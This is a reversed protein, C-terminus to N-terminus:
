DHDAALMLAGVGSRDRRDDPVESLHGKSMVYIRDCLALVEDLDTSILVVPVGSAALREMESHVFAAASVDLGRTPNEAVLLGRAMHVERAVVFRGSGGGAGGGAGAVWRPLAFIQELDDELFDNDADDYFNLDPVGDTRRPDDAPYGTNNKPM